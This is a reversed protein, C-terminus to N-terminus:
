VSATEPDESGQCLWVRGSEPLCDVLSALQGILVEADVDRQQGRNVRWVVFSICLCRDLLPDCYKLSSPIITLKLKVGHKGKTRIPYQDISYGPGEDLVEFLHSTNHDVFTLM